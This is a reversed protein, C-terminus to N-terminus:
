SSEHYRNSPHKSRPQEHVPSNRHECMRQSPSISRPRICGRKNLMVWTSGIQASKFPPISRRGSRASMVVRMRRLRLLVLSSRRAIALSLAASKFNGVTQLCLTNELDDINCRACVETEVEWGKFSVLRQCIHGLELAHYVQVFNNEDDSESFHSRPPTGPRSPLHFRFAVKSNFSTNLHCPHHTVAHM